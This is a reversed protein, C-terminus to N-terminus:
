VDKVEKKFQGCHPCGIYGLKFGTEELSDIIQGYSCNLNKGSSILERLELCFTKVIKGAEKDTLKEIESVLM